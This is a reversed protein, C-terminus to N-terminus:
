ELKKYFSKFIHKQFDAIVNNEIIMATESNYDIFALYDSVIHSEKSKM